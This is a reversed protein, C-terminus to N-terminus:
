LIVEQPEQQPSLREQAPEAPHPGEQASDCADFPSWRDRAEDVIAILRAIVVEPTDAFPDVVFGKLREYLEDSINFTRM